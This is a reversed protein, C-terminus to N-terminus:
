SVPRRLEARLIREAVRPLVREVRREVTRISFRRRIHARKVLIGYVTDPGRKLYKVVAQGRVYRRRPRRQGKKLPVLLWEGKPKRTGGRLQLRLLDNAHINRLVTPRVVRGTTFNVYSKRVRLVARPFSRKREDFVANWERVFAQKALKGGEDMIKRQANHVRHKRIRSLARKTRKADSTLRLAIAM